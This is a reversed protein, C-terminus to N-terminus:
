KCEPDKCNGPDFDDDIAIGSIRDHSKEHAQQFTAKNKTKKRDKSKSSRKKKQSIPVPLSGEPQEIM